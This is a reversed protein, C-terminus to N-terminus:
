FPRPRAPYKPICPSFRSQWLSVDIQIQSMLLQGGPPDGPGQETGSDGLGQSLGTSGPSLVTKAMVVRFMDSKLGHIM